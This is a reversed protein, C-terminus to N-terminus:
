KVDLVRTQLTETNLSIKKAFTKKNGAISITYEGDPAGAMSIRKLYSPSKTQDSFGAGDPGSIIIRLREGFPNNIALRFKEGDGDPTVIVEFSDITQAKATDTVMYVPRAHTQATTAIVTTSAIITFVLLSLINLIKFKKM